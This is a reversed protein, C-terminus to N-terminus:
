ITAGFHAHSNPAPVRRLLQNHLIFLWNKLPHLGGVQSLPPLAVLQAEGAVKSWMGQQAQNAYHGVLFFILGASNNSVPVPIEGDMSPVYLLESNLKRRKPPFGDGRERGM